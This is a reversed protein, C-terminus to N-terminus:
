PAESTSSRAQKRAWGVLDDYEYMVRRGFKSFRPGNGEIRWRGLTSVAVRLFRAAELVTLFTANQSSHFPKDSRDPPQQM